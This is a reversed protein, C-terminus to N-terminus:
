RAAPVYGSDAVTRQGQRSFLWSRLRAAPGDRLIDTRTVVFVEAVLPYSRDAITKRSPLVKNVGLLKFGRYLRQLEEIYYSTYGIAWQNRSVWAIPAAETTLLRDKADIGKAGRLIFRDMLGQSESGRERTYAIIEAEPGGISRWNKVEGTYVEYLHELSLSDVPNQSNLVFVLADLGVPRVDLATGKDRVRTLEENSPKRTVFVIDNTGEILGQYANEASQSRIKALALRYMEFQELSTELAFAVGLSFEGKSRVYSHRLEGDLGLCRALILEALPQTSVSVDVRPFDQATFLAAARGGVQTSARHSTLGFVLIFTLFVSKQFM